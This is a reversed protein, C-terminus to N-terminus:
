CRLFHAREPLPVYYYYHRKAHCTPTARRLYRAYPRPMFADHPMAFDAARLIADARERAFADRFYDHWCNTFIIADGRMMASFIDHDHEPLIIAICIMASAASAAYLRMLPMRAHPFSLM